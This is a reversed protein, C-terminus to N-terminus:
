DQDLDNEFTTKSPPPLPPLIRLAPPINPSISAAFSFTKKLFSTIRNNKKLNFLQEYPDKEGPVAVFRSISFFGRVLFLVYHFLSRVGDRLFIRNESIM